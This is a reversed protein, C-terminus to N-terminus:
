WALFGGDISLNQGNIYDSKDSILFDLANSIDDTKGMRGSPTKNNYNNVFDETQGNYIGGPSISNVQINYKGFHAAMYKTLQIVGAKTASYVESNNRGSSGYIRYDSSRVGYISAINIIKGCNQKKMINIAGQAMLFTGLLNVDTVSKFEEATREEFSSFVGIGANNILLDLESIDNYFSKVSKENTIDLEIPIIQKFEHLSKIDKDVAYVEYDNTILNRLFEKGLNGSAGTLIAKKMM